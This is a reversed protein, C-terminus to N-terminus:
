TTEYRLGRKTNAALDKLFRSTGYRLFHIFGPIVASFDLEM